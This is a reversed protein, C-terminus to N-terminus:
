QLSRDTNMVVRNENCVAQDENVVIALQGGYTGSLHISEGLFARIDTGWTGENGAQTPCDPM